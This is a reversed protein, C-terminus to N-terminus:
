VESRVLSTLIEGSIELLRDATWTMAEISEM